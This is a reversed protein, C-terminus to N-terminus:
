RQKLEKNYFHQQCEGKTLYTQYRFTQSERQVRIFSTIQKSIFESTKEGLYFGYDIDLKLLEESPLQIANKLAHEWESSYPITESTLIQFDWNSKTKIFKSYCIDLGDLSTGSM